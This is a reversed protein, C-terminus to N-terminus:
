GADSAADAEPDVTQDKQVAKMISNFVHMPVKSLGEVTIPIPTVEDDETLDWSVLLDAMSEVNRRIVERNIKGKAQEAEANEAQEALADLDAPTANSPRYVVNLIEGDAFPVQIPRANAVAASLRM